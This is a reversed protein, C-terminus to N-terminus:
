DYKSKHLWYLVTNDTVLLFIQSSMEYGLLAGGPHYLCLILLWSEVLSPKLTVLLLQFQSHNSPEMQIFFNRWHPGHHHNLPWREKRRSQRDSNSDQRSSKKVVPRFFLFPAPTPGDLFVFCNEGAPPQNGVLFVILGLGQHQLCGLFVLYLWRIPLWLLSKKSNNRKSDKSISPPNSGEREM